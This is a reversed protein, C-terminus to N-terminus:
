YTAVLAASTTTDTKTFGPPPDNDLNVEYSLKVAFHSNIATKLSTLSSLRYADSDIFEYIYEGEQAFEATESLRLSYLAFARGSGFKEYDGGQRDEWSYQAGIEGRVLQRATSLLQRGYGGGATMRSDIGAFRDKEWKGLEFLYNDPSFKWEVKEAASYKEATSAGNEDSKLANGELNLAADSWDRRFKNKSGLTRTRTNGTTNVYSMESSLSWAKEGPPGAEQAGAPALSGSWLVVAGLFRGFSVKRTFAATKM